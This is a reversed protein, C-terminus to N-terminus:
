YQLLLMKFVRGSYMRINGNSMPTGRGVKAGGM